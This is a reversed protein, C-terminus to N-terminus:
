STRLITTSTSSDRRSVLLGTADIVTDGALPKVDQGVAVIRDNVIRV